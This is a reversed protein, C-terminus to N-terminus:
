TNENERLLVDINRKTDFLLRLPRTATAKTRTVADM